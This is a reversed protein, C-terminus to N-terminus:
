KSLIILGMKEETLDSEKFKYSDNPTCAYGLIQPLECALEGYSVLLRPEIIDICKHDKKGIPAIMIDIQGFFDLTEADFEEPLVPIYALWKNEARFYFYRLGDHERVYM